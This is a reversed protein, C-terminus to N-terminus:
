AVMFQDDCVDRRVHAPALGFRGPPRSAAALPWEGQHQLQDLRTQTVPAVDGGQPTHLVRRVAGTIEDISWIDETADRTATMLIRHGDPFWSPVHYEGQGDTVRRVDAGDANVTYVNWRGEKKSYFTLRRSDSSWSALGGYMNGHTVRRADTGDVKATFLDLSDEEGPPVSAFAIRRGDPSWSPWRPRLGPVEIRRQGSGDPHMAYLGADGYRNGTYAIWKGNPAWNPNGVRTPPKIPAASQRAAGSPATAILLLVVASTLALLHTRRM